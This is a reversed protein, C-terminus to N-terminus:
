CSAIELRGLDARRAAERGDVQVRLGEGRRWIIDVVRGRVRAGTLSFHELDFPLPHGVLRPEAAAPQLGAVFQILLDGIWSHLYDDTGRFFPAAGTFPHYYEYSTPRSLDGDLFLGRVWRAILEAARAALDPREFRQATHALAQAVHATSMLWARGNWPCNSRRQKWEGEASFGPDDVATAPLPFPTWFEEPNFLHDFARLHEAQPIDSLFPYFGVAAKSPCRAGTLPHVDFFFGIEPDWMRERVAAAIADAEGAFEAPLAAGVEPALWELCRFLQYAYLTADVGKLRPALPGWQDAREDVFQYRAMYEQGTEAQNRVDYLHTGERDHERRYYAAYRLLAPYARHLFDGDPHVAHIARVAGGWDAHYIFDPAVSAGPGTVIAGPFSGDARQARFFNELCGQALAPDPLWRAERALIQASYSIQHRFWGTNIGEFVAPRPLNFRGGTDVTNLRLGFFRYYYYAELYPDSCRFVPLADFYDQWAREARAIPGAGRYLRAAAADGTRGEGAQLATDLNARAAEAEPALACGFTLRQTEGAELTLPYALALYLLTNATDGLAGGTLHTLNPLRVQGDIPRVHDWFPTLEWRPHNAHGTSWESHLAAYSGSERDAGWAFEVELRADAGRAPLRRGFGMAWPCAPSHPHTLFAAAGVAEESDRPQATWLVATLSQREARLNSLHLGSLFVDEPSVAKVETVLLRAAGATAPAPFAAPDPAGPQTTYHQDLRGPRWERGALALPIIHGAEDLLTVTFLPEVAHELFAAHDWFGPRDAWRPYEPAWLCLRAGGLSLKDVRTLPDFGV